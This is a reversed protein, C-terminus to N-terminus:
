GPFRGVANAVFYGVVLFSLLLAAAAGYAYMWFPVPLNYLRGFSHAAVQTPLTVMALAAAIALTRPEARVSKSCASKRM